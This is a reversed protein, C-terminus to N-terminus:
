FAPPPPPPSPPRGRPQVAPRVASSRVAAEKVDIFAFNTIVQPKGDQLVEFDEAKLDTVAKGKNDRVVANVQVLNVNIRIVGESPPAQQVSSQTTSVFLIASIAIAIWRFTKM